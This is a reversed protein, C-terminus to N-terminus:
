RPSELAPSSDLLGLREWVPGLSFRLTRSLAARPRRAFVFARRRPVIASAFQLKYDHVGHSVFTGIGRASLRRLVEQTLLIGPSLHRVADDFSLTFDFYVGREAVGMMYARDRGGVTLISLALQRRAGFRRAIERYFRRHHDAMPGGRRAKWSEDSIAFMRAVASEIAAPDDEFHVGEVGIPGLAETAKRRRRLNGRFKGSLRAEYRDYGDRLDVTAYSTSVTELALGRRAAAQRLAEFERSEPDLLNFRAVHFPVAGALSDLFEGAIEPRGDALLFEGAEAGAAAFQVCEVPIGGVRGPRVLLPAVGVLETGEWASGVLPLGAQGAHHVYWPLLYDCSALPTATAASAELARWAQELSAIDDLGHSWRVTIM